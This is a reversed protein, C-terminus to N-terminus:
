SAAGEPQASVSTARANAAKRGSVRAVGVLERLVDRFCLALVGIAGGVGGVTALVLTLAPPLPLRCVLGAVLAVAAGAALAPAVARLLDPWHLGLVRTAVGQMLVAFVASTVVQAWAVGEIGWRTALVLAPILVALRVLSVYVSLGPRGLAKYVDNAGVGLSRWAAYLALAVLPGVAPRWVEGFVLPVVVPAVAAIGVGACVGYLAQIRVGLLYGTRLQGPDSKARSYIPFAVSSLVFFVNIILFEPLRFALTYFGLAQAGLMVGIVLYDLDFILRALLSGTAAPVGFNLVQRLDATTTRWLRLDPWGRLLLWASVTYALSGAVTGWALAWAGFGALGTAISVVGTVVARLISAGTLRGFSLSQRLLAEPVAALSGVLLSLSLFRVLATVEERGFASAILPATAFAILALASGLAFSCFLGARTTAARVPLFVLAQAVGADAVAEAYTILVLALAVLGFEEPALLRALVVTTLLVVAKGLVYASGQWVAGRTGARLLNRGAARGGEAADHEASTPDAAGVSRKIVDSGTTTAMRHPQASRTADHRDFERRTPGCCNQRFPAEV